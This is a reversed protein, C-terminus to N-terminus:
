CGNKTEGKKLQNEVTEKITELAKRAEPDLPSMDKIQHVIDIAKWRFVAAVTQREEDCVTVRTTKSKRKGPPLQKYVAPATKDGPAVNTMRKAKIEGEVVDGKKGKALRIFILEDPRLRVVYFRRGAYLRDFEKRFKKLAARGCGSWAEVVRDPLHETTMWEPPNAGLPVVLAEYVAHIRRKKSSEKKREKRSDKHCVNTYLLSSWVTPPLEQAWQYEVQYPDLVLCSSEVSSPDGVIVHFLGEHFFGVTKELWPRRCEADDRFSLYNKQSCGPPVKVGEGDLFSPCLNTLGRGKVQQQNALIIGEEQYAKRSRPTPGRGSRTM